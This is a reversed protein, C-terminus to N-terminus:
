VSCYRCLISELGVQLDILGIKYHYDLDRLNQLIAKLDKEEFYKSQTKYKNVLFTQNPKLNLSTIIDKNYKMALKTFYLKKFHNYLTILIKQIPEKAYLLNQLVQLAKGTEKKGLSDTLDFIVSELKKICLCDIDQKQITGNEGAYEILKRIENILEQMNTGCCEIFYRLNVDSINVKYAQCIAKMRKEIQIPKQYEFNCITGLKDIIKYLNTKSDVEEEIFVLVISEKIFKNNTELYQALKDRIKGLETNKRKGEKKLIGSNRVVILKKEYGFAPTEIDSIMEGINTEDIPIYNIGKICEGFLHKIKKLSNELLFLEEGFLLYINKLINQNLEKELEEIKIM